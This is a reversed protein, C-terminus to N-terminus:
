NMRGQEFVKKSDVNLWPRLRRSSRNLLRVARSRHSRVASLKNALERGTLEGLESVQEAQSCELWNIGFAQAALIMKYTEHELAVAVGTFPPSFSLPMRWIAPMAGIRQNYEGTLVAAVQPYFLRHVKAPEINKWTMPIM